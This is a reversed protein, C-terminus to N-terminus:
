SKVLFFTSSVVGSLFGNVFTIIHLVMRIVMISPITMFPLSHCLLCINEKLFHINHEILGCHQSAADWDLHPAIPLVITLANLVAFEQDGSIVTIHLGQRLYM